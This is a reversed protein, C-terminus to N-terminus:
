PRRCETVYVREGDRIGWLGQAIEEGIVTFGHKRFFAIQPALSQPSLGRVRTCGLKWFAELQADILRAGHGAGRVDPRLVIDDSWGLAPDSTALRGAVLGLLRAGEFAGIQLTPWAAFSRRLDALVEAPPLGANTEPLLEAAASLDVAELPRLLV